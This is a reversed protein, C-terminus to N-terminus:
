RLDGLQNGFNMLSAAVKADGKFDTFMKAKARILMLFSDLVQIQRDFETSNWVPDNVEMRAFASREQFAYGDMILKKANKVMSADMAKEVSARSSEFGRIINAKEAEFDHLNSLIHDAWGGALKFQEFLVHPGHESWSLSSWDIGVSHLSGNYNIVRTTLASLNKYDM